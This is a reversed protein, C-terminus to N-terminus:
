TRLIHARQRSEEQRRFVGADTDRILRDLREREVCPWAINALEFAQQRKQRDDYLPRLNPKLIQRRFKLRELLGAGSRLVVAQVFQLFMDDEICKSLSGAA